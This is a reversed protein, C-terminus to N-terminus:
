PLKRVTTGEGAEGLGRAIAWNKWYAYSGNAMPSATGFEHPGGYLDMVYGGASTGNSGPLLIIARGADFSWHGSSTVAPALGFAHIGGYGDLTYGAPAGHTATPLLVLGRAIDKGKFYAPTVVAPANGFPHVGGYADLTYGGVSSPTSDPLIVIGRALDQGKWYASQGAAPASGFPHVGGYADLTYGAPTSPTSWPALAIGRALNQNKWYAENSVAAPMSCSGVSFQHLGGWADMVYGGTGDPEVAIGRAIDWNKWYGSGTAHAAVGDATIGGFGDLTYFRTGGVNGVCSAAAVTASNTFILSHPDAGDSITIHVTYSGALTYTHAGSVGMQCGDDSSGLGPSSGCSAIATSGSTTDVATGDGWDISVSYEPLGGQDTPQALQNGDQFLGIQGNFPQNATANIAVPTGAVFPQDKIAITGDGGSTTANTTNTVVVNIPFGCTDAPCNFEDSYVHTAVITYTSSGGGPATITCSSSPCTSKPGNDGWNVKASYDSAPLCAGPCGSNSDTFTAIAGGAGMSATPGELITNTLDSNVTVAIPGGSASAVQGAALVLLACLALGGGAARLVRRTWAARIDRVKTASHGM